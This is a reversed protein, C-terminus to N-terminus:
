LSSTPPFGYRPCSPLPTLHFISLSYHVNSSPQYQNSPGLDFINLWEPYWKICICVCAILVARLRSIGFQLDLANLHSTNRWRINSIVPYLMQQFEYNFHFANDLIVNGLINPHPCAPVFSEMCTIFHPTTLQIPLNYFIYIYIPTREM